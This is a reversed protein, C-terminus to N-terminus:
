KKQSKAQPNDAGRSTSRTPKSKESSRAGVVPAAREVPNHREDPVSAPEVALAKDGARVALAGAAAKEIGLRLATQSADLSHAEEDHATFAEARTEKHKKGDAGTIEVEGVLWYPGNDVLGKFSAQVGKVTAEAHVKGGGTYEDGLRPVARVKTGNPFTGGVDLTAETSV